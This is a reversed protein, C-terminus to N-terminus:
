STQGPQFCVEIASHDSLNSERFAHVYECSTPNLRPSAFVHDFRRGTAPNKRTVFWSFEQTEYGRLSRFVDPLDHARLGQLVDREAKDWREPTGLSKDLVVDGSPAVCEAWTVIRGDVHEEQPTNFDGCLIRPRESVRALRKFIGELTEVKLWEHSCGPPIYATHLEVDGFPAQVIVSLLREPWPMGCEENPMRAIPWRSAIMEGLCRAAPENRSVKRSCTQDVFPFCRAKLLPVLQRASDRTVEQLAIVDPTRGVIAQVQAECCGTRHAINWSILKM